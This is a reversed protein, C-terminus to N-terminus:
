GAVEPPIFCDAFRANGYIVSGQVAEYQYTYDFLKIEVVTDSSVDCRYAEGIKTCDPSPDGALSRIISGNVFRNESQFGSTFDLGERDYLAECPPGEIDRHLWLEGWPIFAAAGVVCAGVAWLLIGRRM